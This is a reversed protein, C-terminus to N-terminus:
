MGSTIHGPLSSFKSLVAQALTPLVTVLALTLAFGILLYEVASAGAEDRVFQKVKRM